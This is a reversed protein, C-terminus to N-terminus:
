IKMNVATSCLRLFLCYLIFSFGDECYFYCTVPLRELQTVSGVKTLQESGVM